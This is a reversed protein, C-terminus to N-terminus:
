KEGGGKKWLRNIVAVSLGSAGAAALLPLATLLYDALTFPYVTYTLNTTDPMRWLLMHLCLGLCVPSLVALIYKLPVLCQQGGWWASDPRSRHLWVLLLNPGTMLCLCVFVFKAAQWLGSYELGNQRQLTLWYTPNSYLIFAPLNEQAQQRLQAEEQVDLVEPLVIEIRVAGALGSTFYAEPPIALGSELPTSIVRYSEGGLELTKGQAQEPTIGGAAAVRQAQQEETFLSGPDSLPVTVTSFYVGQLPEPADGEALEVQLSLSQPSWNQLFALQEQQALAGRAAYLTYTRPTEDNKRERNTKITVEYLWPAYFAAATTSLILLVLVLVTVIRRGKM